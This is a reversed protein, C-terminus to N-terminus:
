KEPAQELVLLAWLALEPLEAHGGKLELAAEPKGPTVLRATAGSPVGLAKMDLTLRLGGMPRVDDRASDYDYNLAHIVVGGGPKARPFVRVPGPAHVRVVPQMKELAEKVTSFVRKGLAEQELVRQDELLLEARDPILLASVGQFDEPTLARDVIEDGGLLLRYSVNAAALEQSIEFWRNPNNLFARHPLVVAIDAVNEYGDFLAAHQRVFLYLPAFKDAPGQYWHTGKEPTYCWQRHPAMLSHGAAYGLAIWGRVLGPLDQEKIFAWDHGSATAAYPRSVADAMRYAFVPADSFRRTSAHHETEASFLDLTRYTSLHRPWLLGANAGMPVHRGATQNALDHLEEMFAAAARCQYITWHTWLPHQTPKRSKAPDQAIWQKVAARFDYQEPRAGDLAPLTEPPLSKLYARFGDVCRDCFCLGRWLGGATGMHDDIHLGHAGAKITDRVRERLYQRFLPQQTCCWWYPIGKHQHDTLWPVKVPQGDIDRCLGQEYGDPFREYYARFETVMGVSGFVKVGAAQELSKPTPRGGWALVTAGYEAYTKADSQYMFVVDSREIVAPRAAIQAALVLVFCFSRGVLSAHMRSM